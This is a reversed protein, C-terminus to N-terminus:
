AAAAAIERRDRLVPVPGNFSVGQAYRVGAKRLIEVTAPDDVGEAVSPIRLHRAIDNIVKVFAMNLPEAALDRVLGAEIKLLDVALEKLYSLSSLGAGFNELAFRFGEKRLREMFGRAADLNATVATEPIGFTVRNPAM